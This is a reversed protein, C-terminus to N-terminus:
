QSACRKAIAEALMSGLNPGQLPYLFPEILEVEMLMWGDNGNPILDVRAYFAPEPLAAMVSKATNQIDETIPYIKEKGGYESQIRYDGEAPAKLVAHSPEGDVMVVSVEGFSQIIPVFPQVMMPHPFASLPADGHLRVQGDAGAGIQRKLVLDDTGFTNAADAIDKPTVTDIWQTPLTNIGCAALERLYRKHLNWRVLAPSNVLRTAAAIIDLTGLFEEVRDWYDWATGIMVIDYVSWDAQPDDWARAEITAGVSRLGASLCAVMQDHEFADDRRYPSGPLTNESSLYCLRM